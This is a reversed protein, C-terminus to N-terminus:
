AVRRQPADAKNAVLRRKRGPVKAAELQIQCQKDFPIGGQRVWKYVAAPSVDCIEAVAVAGGFFNVVEVPKM